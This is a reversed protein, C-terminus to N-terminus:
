GLAAPTDPPYTHAVATFDDRQDGLTLIEFLEALLIPDAAELVIQVKHPLLRLDGAVSKLPDIVHDHRRPRGDIFFRAAYPPGVVLEKVIRFVLAAVGDKPEILRHFM